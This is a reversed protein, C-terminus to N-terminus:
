SIEVDRIQPTRPAPSHLALAEQPIGVHREPSGGM